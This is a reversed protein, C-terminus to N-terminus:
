RAAVGGAADRLQYVESDEILSACRVIRHGAIVTGSEFQPRLEGEEESGAPVLVRNHLFTGLHPLLENFLGEPDRGLSRSNEIIAEVITRPQRFLELLAATGGDIVQALARGHRRSLTFDGEDFAIRGRLDDSLDACPILLVDERLVFPDTYNVVVGSHREDISSM